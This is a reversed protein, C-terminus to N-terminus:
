LAEVKGWVTFSLEAKTGHVSMRLLFSVSEYRHSYSIKPTRQQSILSVIKVRSMGTLGGLRAEPDRQYHTRVFRKGVRLVGMAFGVVVGVARVADHCLHRVEARVVSVVHSSFVFVADPGQDDGRATGVAADELM